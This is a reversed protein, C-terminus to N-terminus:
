LESNLRGRGRHTLPRLRSVNLKNNIIQSRAGQAMKNCELKRRSTLKLKTGFEIAVIGM